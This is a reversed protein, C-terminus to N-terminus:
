PTRASAKRARSPEASRIRSLVRVPFLAREFVAQYAEGAAFPLELQRHEDTRGTDLSEPLVAYFPRHAAVAGPGPVPENADTREMLHTGKTGVYAIDAAVNNTLQRQIGFSWNQSYETRYNTDTIHFQGSLNTLSPIVPPNFGDQLRRTPIIGQSNTTQDSFGFPLNFAMLTRGASLDEIYSISYGTRLVTKGNGTLDYALGLRPGFNNWDTSRLARGLPSNPSAIVLKATATDFNSQRDHRITFISM